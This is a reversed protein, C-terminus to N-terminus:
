NNKLLQNFDDTAKKGVTGALQAEVMTSEVSTMTKMMQAPDSAMSPNQMASQMGKFGNQIQHAAREMSQLIKDGPSLGAQPAAGSGDVPAATTAGDPASDPGAGQLDRPANVQLTGDQPAASQNIANAGGVGQAQGAGAAGGASSPNASGNMANAFREVDGASAGGRQPGQDKAAEEAVKSVLKQIADSTIM